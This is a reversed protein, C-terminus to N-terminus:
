PPVLGRRIHEDYNQEIEEEDLARNYLRAYKMWGDTHQAAATHARGILINTARFTVNGINLTAVLEGNIYHKMVNVGDYTMTVHIFGGPISTGQITSRLSVNSHFGSALSTANEWRWFILGLGEAATTGYDGMWGRTAGRTNDRIVIDITCGNNMANHIVPTTIVTNSGNFRLSNSEQILSDNTFNAMVGNNNLNSYDTLVTSSRLDNEDNFLLDYHFLTSDNVYKVNHPKISWSFSTDSTINVNLTKEFYDKCKLLVDAKGFFVPVVVDGNSDTTGSYAGIKVVCDPVPENTLDDTIKVTVDKVQSLFLNEYNDDLEEDTLAEQYINIMNVNGLLHRDANSHARGFTFHKNLITRTGLDATKTLENIRVKLETGKWTMAVYFFQGDSPMEGNDFQIRPTVGVINFYFINTEWQGGLFDNNAVGDGFLGRHNTRSDMSVIMEITVGNPNNMINQLIPTTMLTNTGNFRLGNDKWDDYTFNSLTAYNANGSLDNWFDARDEHNTASYSAILKNTNILGQSIYTEYKEKAIEPTTFFESVEFLKVNGKLYATATDYGRGLSVPNRAKTFIGIEKTDVLEGNIYIRQINTGDYTMLIHCYGFPILHSKVQSLTRNHFGIQMYDSTIWEAIPGITPSYEGWLGRSSNRDDFRAIAEFTCPGRIQNIPIPSRIFNDVGNFYLSGDTKFSSRSFNNSTSTYENPSLDIINTASNGAEWLHFKLLVDPKKIMGENIYEQYKRTVDAQTLNRDYVNFEKISGKLYHNTNSTHSRGIILPTDLIIRNAAFSSVLVGNSYVYVNAKDWTMIIHNFFYFPFYTGSVATHSGNYFGFHSSDGSWYGFMFTFNSGYDGAFGENVPTRDYLGVVELAGGYRNIFSQKIRSEMFQSLTNEFYLSGDDQLSDETMNSVIANNIQGSSDLLLNPTKAFDYDKMKYSAILSNTQILGRDVHVSYNKKVEEEDLGRTYFLCTRVEGSYYPSTTSRGMYFPLNNFTLNGVEKTRLLNGNVYVKLVNVGDYTMTINNFGLNLDTNAIDAHTAASGFFGIALNTASTWRWQIGMATATGQDGFLGANTAIVYDKVVVDITFGNNMVNQQFPLTVLPATGNFVLSGDKMSDSTGQSIIANNNMSSHDNWLYQEDKRLISDYWALIGHKVYGEDPYMYIKVSGDEEIEIKQDHDVFDKLTAKLDYTGKRIDNITCEGKEDTFCEHEIRDDALTVKAGSLKETEQIDEEDSM